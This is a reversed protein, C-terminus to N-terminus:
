RSKVRRGAGGDHGARQSFAQQFYTQRKMTYLIDNRRRRSGGARSRAIQSLHRTDKEAAMSSEYM